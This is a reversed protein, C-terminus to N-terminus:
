VLSGFVEKEIGKLNKCFYISFPPKFSSDFTAFDTLYMNLSLISCIRCSKQGHNCQVLDNRRLISTKAPSVFWNIIFWSFYKRLKISNTIAWWFRSVQKDLLIKKFIRLLLKNQHWENMLQFLMAMYYISYELAM